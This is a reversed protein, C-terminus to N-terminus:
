KERKQSNLALLVICDWPIVDVLPPVPPGLDEPGWHVCASGGASPAQVSVRQSLDLDLSLAEEGSAPM